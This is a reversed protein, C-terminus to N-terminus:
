VTDEIAQSPTTLPSVASSVSVTRRSEKLSRTTSTGRNLSDSRTTPKVIVGGDPEPLLEPLACQRRQALPWKFASTSPRPSNTTSTCAASGSVSFGCVLKESAVGLATVVFNLSRM